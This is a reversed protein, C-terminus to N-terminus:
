IGLSLGQLKTTIGVVNGHARCTGKEASTLHSHRVVWSLSELTLTSTWSKLSAKSKISQPVAFKPSFCASNEFLWFSVLIPRHARKHSVVSRYINQNQAAKQFQCYCCLLYFFYRLFPHGKFLGLFFPTPKEQGFTYVVNPGKPESCFFCTAKHNKTLLIVHGSFVEYDTNRTEPNELNPCNVYNKCTDLTWHM